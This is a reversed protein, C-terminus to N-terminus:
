IVIMKSAFSLKLTFAIKIYMNYIIVLFIYILFLIFFYLDHYHLYFHFYLFRGIIKNEAKVTKMKKM